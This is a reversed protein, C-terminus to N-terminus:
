GTIVTFTGTKTAGGSAVVFKIRENAVYIRDTVATGGGAYLLAAGATSHLAARPYVTETANVNTDVWVSQLTDETTITFDVGDAFDTKTYTVMLIAGTVAHATYATADGDANTTVTVTHRQLNM